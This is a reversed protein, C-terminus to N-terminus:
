RSMGRDQNQDHTQEPEAQHAPEPKTQEPQQALDDEISPKVQDAERTPQTSQSRNDGASRTQEPQQTREAQLRLLLENADEGQKMGLEERVDRVQADPFAERLRQERKATLSEGGKDRDFAMSFKQINNREALAKIAAETNPGTEGTTGVFLIRQREEPSALQYVSLTDVGSECFRIETPNACRGNAIYIGKETDKSFGKATRAEGTEKDQYDFGRYEYGAINRDADHHPFVASGHINTKWRTEDLVEPTIGRSELYRTDRRGMLGLTRQATQTGRALREANKEAEAQVAIEHQKQREALSERSIPTSKKDAFDEVARKADVFSGGREHQYLKFIDGRDGGDRKWWAYGDPNKRVFFEESGKTLVGREGSMSGGPAYQVGHRKVTLDHDVKFGLSEAFGYFDVDRRLEKTLYRDQDKDFKKMGRGEGKPAAVAATAPKGTGTRRLEATSRGRVDSHDPLVGEARRERSAALDRSPVQRLSDRPTGGGAALPDLEGFGGARHQAHKAPDRQIRDAGDALRYVGFGRAVRGPSEGTGLDARDGREASRGPETRDTPENGRRPDAPSHLRREHTAEQPTPKIQTVKNKHIAPKATKLTECLDRRQEPPVKSGTNKWPLVKAGVPPNETIFVAVSAKEKPWKQDDKNLEVIGKGYAKALDIEDKSATLVEVKQPKEKASKKTWTLRDSFGKLRDFIVAVHKKLEAIPPALPREQKVENRKAFAQLKPTPPDIKNTGIPPFVFRESIGKLRDLVGIAQKKLQLAQGTQITSIIALRVAPMLDLANKKHEYAATSKKFKGWATENLYIKAGYIGRTYSVYLAQLSTMSSPLYFAKKVTMGQSKHSTMAYGHQLAQYETSKIKVTQGDDRAITFEVGNVTEGEIKESFDRFALVTGLDGNYIKQEKADKANKRLLLRDGVGVDLTVRHGQNVETEVSVRQSADTNLVGRTFLEARFKDNLSQVQENTDALILVDPWGLERVVGDKGPAGSRMDNLAESVLRDAENDGEYSFRLQAKEGMLKIALDTKGEYLAQAIPRYEITQRAITEIKAVRDGVVDHLTGFLAATQVAGHQNRDGACVLRAGSEHCASILSHMMYTDLLGAEDCVIIDGSQILDSPKYKKGAQKAALAAEHMILLNHVTQSQIGTSAQLQAQASNSPAVGLVRRGDAEFANKYARFVPALTASKGVGAAGKLFTYQGLGTLDYAAQRQEATLTYPPEGPKQEARKEDQFADIVADVRDRSLEWRPDDLGAVVAKVCDSELDFMEQTTYRTLRNKGSETQEQPIEILGLQKIIADRTPAIAEERRGVSLQVAAFNLAYLEVVSGGRFVMQKLEALTPAQRESDKTRVLAIKNIRLYDDWDDDMELDKGERTRYAVSQSASAGAAGIEKMVAGIQRSRKSNEEIMQRSVTADNLRLGHGTYDVVCAAAVEPLRETLLRHQVVDHYAAMERQVRYIIGADLTYMTGDPLMVSNPIEIHTHVNADPHKFGQVRRAACHAYLAAMAQGEISEAGQAGTRGRVYGQSQIWDWTLQVAEIQIKQLIARTEDDAQGWYLSLSKQWSICMSFGLVQDSKGDEQRQKDAAEVAELTLGTKGEEASKAKRALKEFKKISKEIQAQRKKSLFSEHNRPNIGRFIAIYDGNLPREGLNLTKALPGAYATALTDNGSKHYYDDRGTGQEGLEVNGIIKDIARDVEELEARMEENAEKRDCGLAIRKELLAKLERLKKEFYAAKATFNAATTKVDSM